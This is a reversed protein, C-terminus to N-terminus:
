PSFIDFTFQAAPVAEKGQESLVTLKVKGTLIYFVADAPSGQSFVEQHTRYKSITRGCDVTALFVKPDFPVTRVEGPM